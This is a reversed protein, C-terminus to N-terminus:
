DDVIRGGQCYRRILAHVEAVFAELTYRRATELGHGILARRLSGDEILRDIAEALDDSRSPPVLLGDWEHRVSTPIGGVNTAVVPLGAARAELLIRPTGESLTPLVFLDSQAFLARMESGATIYKDEWRVRGQLGLREIEGLLEDRYDDYRGHPGALHLETRRPTRLSAVARILYQVGKEPRMFSLMLIRVTSGTCTDKRDVIDEEGITSSVVAHTRSSKYKRALADGNCVLVGGALSRGARVALYDLWSYLLALQRGVFGGRPHSRLLAIPDGIIWHCPRLKKMFAFVYLAAAFPVMGRVFLVDVFGCLEFYKAIIALMHRMAGAMNAYHPQAVVRVDATAIRYDLAPPRKGSQFPLCLVVSDYKEALRDVVKGFSFHVYVGSEDRYAQTGSVIGLTAM